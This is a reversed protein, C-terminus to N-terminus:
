LFLYIKRVYKSVGTMTIIPSNPVAIPTSATMVPQKLEEKVISEEKPLTSIPSTSNNDIDTSEIIKTPSVTAMPSPISDVWQQVPGARRRMEWIGRLWGRVKVITEKRVNGPFNMYFILVRIKTICNLENDLKSFVLFLLPYNQIIIKYSQM